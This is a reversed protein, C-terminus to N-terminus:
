GKAAVRKADVSKTGSKSITRKKAFEERKARVQPELSKTEGVAEAVGSAILTVAIPESVSITQLEDYGGYSHGRNIKVTWQKLRTMM